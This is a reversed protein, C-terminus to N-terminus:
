WPRGPRAASALVAGGSRTVGAADTVFVVGEFQDEVAGVYVARAEGLFPEDVVEDCGFEAEGDGVERCVEPADM